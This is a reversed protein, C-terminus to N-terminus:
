RGGGDGGANEAHEERMCNCEYDDFYEKYYGCVDRLEEIPTIDGSYMKQLTLGYYLTTIAIGILFWLLKWISTTIELGFVVLGVCLGALVGGLHAAWDVPTNNNQTKKCKSYCWCFIIVLM